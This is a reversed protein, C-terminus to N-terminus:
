KFINIGDFDCVTYDIGIIDLMTPAVDMLTMNTKTVERNCNSVLFIADEHHGGSSIKHEYATSILDSYVSWHVGYGKTLEFVIDPYQSIYPGSYLKERKAVWQMLKLGNKPNKLEILEEILSNRFTEYDLAVNKKNVEIGGYPSTKISFFPSLYAQSSEFDISSSSTYIDKSLRAFPKLMGVKVIWHICNHQYAFDLLKKKIKEIIPTVMSAINGKTTLYGKERLFENINVTYAPRMSQGHDSLVIYVADKHLGRFSEIVQDFLKYFDRIIDKYPNGPIYTPDEEDFYRWFFHQIIDLENFYIFFIDWEYDKSVKLGFGVENLLKAKAIEAYDGLKNEGPYKGSLTALNNLQYDGFKYNPPYVAVENVLQQGKERLEESPFISRSVMVGNVPWPPFASQPFVICVKKGARGAIDWFTRGKFKEIDLNAIEKWQTEFVDFIHVIGHRAPNLGTYISIWAPITDPPFISKLACAPSERILRSFNPLEKSFRKLLLPSLADIGIILFKGM